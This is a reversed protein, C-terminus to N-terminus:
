LFRMPVEDYSRGLITYGQAVKLSGKCVEFKVVQVKSALSIQEELCCFFISEQSFM